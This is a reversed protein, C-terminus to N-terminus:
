SLRITGKNCIYNVNPLYHSIQIIFLGLYDTGYPNQGLHSRPCIGSDRQFKVLKENITITSEKCLMYCKIFWKEYMIENQNQYEHYVKQTPKAPLDELRNLPCQNYISPM